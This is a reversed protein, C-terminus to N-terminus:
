DTYPAGRNIPGAPGEPKAVSPFFIGGGEGVGIGKEAESQEQLSLKVGIDVQRIRRGARTRLARCGRSAGLAARGGRGDKHQHVHVILSFNADDGRIPLEAFSDLQSPAEVRRALVLRM